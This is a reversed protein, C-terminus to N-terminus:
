YHNQINWVLRRVRKPSHAVPTRPANLVAESEATYGLNMAKDNEGMKSLNRM